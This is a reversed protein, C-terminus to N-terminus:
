GRRPCPGAYARHSDARSAESPRRRRQLMTAPAAREPKPGAPWCCRPPPGARHAPPPTPPQHNGPRSERSLPQQRGTPRPSPRRSAGAPSFNRTSPKQRAARGSGRPVPNRQPAPHNPCRCPHQNVPRNPTRRARGRSLGGRCGTPRPSWPRSSCSAPPSQCRRPRRRDPHRCPSYWQAVFLETQPWGEWRPSWARQPQWRTTPVPNRNALRLPRRHARPPTTTRPPPARPSHAPEPPRPPMPEPTPHPDTSSVPRRRHDARAQGSGAPM